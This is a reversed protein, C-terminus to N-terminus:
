TVDNNTYRFEIKGEEAVGDNRPMKHNLVYDKLSRSAETIISSTGNPHPHIIQLAFIHLEGLGDHMYNKYERMIEILDSSKTLLRHELESYFHLHPNFATSTKM